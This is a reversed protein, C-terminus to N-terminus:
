LSNINAYRTLMVCRKDIRRTAVSDYKGDWLIRLMELLLASPNQM